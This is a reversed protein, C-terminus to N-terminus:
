QWSCLQSDTYGSLCVAELIYFSTDHFIGKHYNLLESIRTQKGLHLVHFTDLCMKAISMM